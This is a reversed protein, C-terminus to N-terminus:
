SGTQAVPRRCRCTGRTMLGSLVPTMGQGGPGCTLVAPLENALRRGFETGLHVVARGGRDTALNEFLSRKARYYAEMDGHFDLHDRSLNTFVALDYRAQLIPKAMCPAVTFLDGVLLTAAM